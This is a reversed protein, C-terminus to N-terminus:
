SATITVTVADPPLLGTGVNLLMEGDDTVVPLPPKVKVTAPLLKKGDDVM